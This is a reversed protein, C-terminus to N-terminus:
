TLYFRDKNKNYSFTYWNTIIQEELWKLLNDWIYDESDVVVEKFDLQWEIFEVSSFNDELKVFDEPFLGNDFEIKM